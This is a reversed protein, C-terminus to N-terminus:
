LLNLFHFHTLYRNPPNNAKSPLNLAGAVGMRGGRPWPLFVFKGQFSFFMKAPSQFVNIIHMM